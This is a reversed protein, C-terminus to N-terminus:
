KIRLQGWSGGGSACEWWTTVRAETQIGGIVSHEDGGHMFDDLFSDVSNTTQVAQQLWLRAGALSLRLGLHTMQLWVSFVWDMEGSSTARRSKSPSNWPSNWKEWCKGPKDSGARDCNAFEEGVRQGEAGQREQARPRGICTLVSWLGSCSWRSEQVFVWSLSKNLQQTVQSIWISNIKKQCVSVNLWKGGLVSLRDPKPNPAQNKEKSHPFWQPPSLSFTFFKINLQEDREAKGVM